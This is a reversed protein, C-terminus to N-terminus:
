CAGRLPRSSRCRGYRRRRGCTRCSARAGDSGSATGLAVWKPPTKLQHATTFASCSAGRQSSAQCASRASAQHATDLTQSRVLPVPFSAWFLRWTRAVRVSRRKDCTDASHLGLSCRRTRTLAALSQMASTAAPSLAQRPVRGLHARHELSAFAILKDRASATALM